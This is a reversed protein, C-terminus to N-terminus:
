HCTVSQALNMLLFALHLLARLKLHIKPIHHRAQPYSAEFMRVPLRTLAPLWEHRRHTNLRPVLCQNQIRKCRGSARGLQPLPEVRVRRGRDDKELGIVNPVDIQEHAAITGTREARAEEEAVVDGFGLQLPDLGAAFGRAYFFWNPTHVSAVFGVWSFVAGPVGLCICMLLPAPKAIRACVYAGATAGILFLVIGETLRYKVQLIELFYATMDVVIFFVVMGAFFGGWAM